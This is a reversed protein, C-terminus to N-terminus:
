IDMKEAAQVADQMRFADIQIGFLFRKMILPKDSPWLCCRISFCLTQHGKESFVASFPPYQHLTLVTSSHSISTIRIVVISSKQSDNPEAM